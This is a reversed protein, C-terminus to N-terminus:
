SWDYDKEYGFNILEQGIREKIFKTIDENFVSRWNGIKGFGTIHCGHVYTSEDWENFTQYKDARIKNKYLSTEQLIEEKRESSLNINYRDSLM